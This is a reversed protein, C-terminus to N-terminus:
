QLINIIIKEAWKLPKFARRAARQPPNFQTLLKLFLIIFIVMQLSMIKIQYNLVILSYINQHNLYMYNILKLNINQIM